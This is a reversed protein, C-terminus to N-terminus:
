WKPKDAGPMDSEDRYQEFRIETDSTKASETEIAPYAMPFRLFRYGAERAECSAFPVLNLVYSTDDQQVLIWTWTM